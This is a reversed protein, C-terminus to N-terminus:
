GGFVLMHMCGFCFFFVSFWSGLFSARPDAPKEGDFKEQFFLGLREQVNKPFGKCNLDITPNEGYHLMEVCTMANDVLGSNLLPFFVFVCVVGFPSGSVSFFNAEWHSGM